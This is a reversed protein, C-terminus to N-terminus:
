YLGIFHIVLIYCFCSGSCEHQWKATMRKPRKHISWDESINSGINALSSVARWGLDTAQGLTPLQGRTERPRKASELILNDDNHFHLFSFVHSALWVSMQISSSIESNIHVVSVCYCFCDFFQVHRATKACELSIYMVSLPATFPDLGGGM